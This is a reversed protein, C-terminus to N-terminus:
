CGMHPTHDLLLDTLLISRGMLTTRQSKPNYYAPWAATARAQWSGGALITHLSHVYGQELATIQVSSRHEVWCMSRSLFLGERNTVVFGSIIDTM